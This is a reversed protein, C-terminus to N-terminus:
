DHIVTLENTDDYPASISQDTICKVCLKNIKFKYKMLVTHLNKLLVFIDALMLLMLCRHSYSL